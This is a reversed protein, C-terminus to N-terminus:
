KPTNLKYVFGFGIIQVLENVQITINVKVYRFRGSAMIKLKQADSNQTIDYTLMTTLLTTNDLYVDVEVSTLNTM